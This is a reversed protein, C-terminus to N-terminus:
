IYENPRLKHWTCSFYIIYGFLFFTITWMIALCALHFWNFKDPVPYFPQPKMAYIDAIGETTPTHDDAQDMM